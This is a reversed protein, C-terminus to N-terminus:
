LIFLVFFDMIEEVSGSREGEPRAANHRNESGILDCALYHLSQRKRIFNLDEPQLRTCDLGTAYVRFMRESQPTMLHFWHDVTADNVHAIKNILRMWPPGHDVLKVIENGVVSEQVIFIVPYWM